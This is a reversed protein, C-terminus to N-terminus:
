WGGQNQNNNWNSGINYGNNNPNHQNTHQVYTNTVLRGALDDINLNYDPQAQNLLQNSPTINVKSDSVAQILAAIFVSSFDYRTIYDKVVVNSTLKRLLRLRRDLLIQQHERGQQLTSLYTEIAVPDGKTLNLVALWDDVDRIDHMVGDRKFYGAHYKGSNYVLRVNQADQLNVKALRALIPAFRGDTLTNAANFLIKNASANGDGARAFIQLLWSNAGGQSVDISYIMSPTLQKEIISRLDHDSKIESAGPKGDANIAPVQYGIAGIDRLEATAGGNNNYAGRWQIAYGRDKNLTTANAISLLACNLPDVALPTSLETIVFRPVFHPPVQGNYQYQNMRPVTYILDVYGGVRSLKTSKLSNVSNRNEQNTGETVILHFEIDSRAPLGNPRNPTNGVVVNSVLNLETNNSLGNLTFHQRTKVLMSFSAKISNLAENLIERLNVKDLTTERYIAQYSCSIPNTQFPTTAIVEGTINKCYGATFADNVTLITEVTTGNINSTTPILGERSAEVILTHFGTCVKGGIKTTQKVVVADFNGTRASPVTIVDIKDKNISNEKLLENFIEKVQNTTETASGNDLDGGFTGLITSISLKDNQSSGWEPIDAQPQVQQQVQPQPEPTPASVPTTQQQAQPQVQDEVKAQATETKNPRNAAM